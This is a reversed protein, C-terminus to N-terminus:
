EPRMPDQPDTGTGTGTGRTVVLPRLRVWLLFGGAVVLLGIGTWLNVNAGDAKALDDESTFFLGVVTIVLGYIGLLAGIITRIDFARVVRATDQSAM